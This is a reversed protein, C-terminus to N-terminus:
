KNKCFSYKLLYLAKVSRNLTKSVAIADFLPISLSDMQINSTYYTAIKTQEQQKFM